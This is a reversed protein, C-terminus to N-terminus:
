NLYKYIAGAITGFAGIVFGLAWKLWWIDAKVEKIEGFHTKIDERMDDLKAHIKDFEQQM